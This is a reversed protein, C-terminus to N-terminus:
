LLITSLNFVMGTHYMYTERNLHYKIFDEFRFYRPRELQLRFVFRFNRLFDVRQVFCFINHGQAYFLVSGLSWDFLKEMRDKWQWDISAFLEDYQVLVILVM